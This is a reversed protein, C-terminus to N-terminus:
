QMRALWMYHVDNNGLLVTCDNEAVADPSSYTSIAWPQPAQRPTYPVCVINVHLEMAVAVIVLEDAYENRGLKDVWAKYMAITRQPGGAELCAFAEYIKALMDMRLLVAAEGACFYERIAAALSGLPGDRIDSSTAQHYCLGNLSRLDLARSQELLIPITVPLAQDPVWSSSALGAALCLWFCAGTTRRAHQGLDVVAVHLHLDRLAREQYQTRVSDITLGPKPLAVKTRTHRKFRTNSLFKARDLDSGYLLFQLARVFSFDCLELARTAAEVSYGLRYFVDAAENEKVEQVASDSVPQSATDKARALCYDACAQTNSGCAAIADRVHDSAFQMEMLIETTIHQALTSWDTTHSQKQQKGKKRPAVHDAADRTHRDRRFAEVIATMGLGSSRGRETHAWALVSDSVPAVGRQSLMNAIDELEHLTAARSEASLICKSFHKQHERLHNQESIGRQQLLADHLRDAEEEFRARTKFDAQLRVSLFHDIPPLSEFAIKSWKTARTWGVFALGMKSAPKPMRANKFSIITGEHATIGQAKHLTMAWALRVPLGVRCLQKSQDSRVEEASIPIWTRPLGPFISPGTYDPFNVVIFNPLPCADVGRPVKASASGSASQSSPYGTGALPNDDARNSNPACYLIAVVVGRAGNMLGLPVTGVGWISNLCLFVRAGVCLHLAKRMNRFAAANRNAGRENNHKAECRVVVSLASASSPAQLSPARSALRNGNIRGAQTNDAVLYLAQQLLKEGGPWPADDTSHSGDISHSQWLEYDDRTIAVDRLRMTSEKFPDAGKQRHIMRLRLIQCFDKFLQRGHLAEFRMNSKPSDILPSGDLLSSALVPPLQAFDGMLMIGFGGFSGLDDPPHQQFRERYLVRAAQSLRKAIIAFQSAGVTSIEDIVILRVPRLANVLRDLSEGVLDQSAEAANTHFISDITCSGSGLNSAAVGSFAMTLVARFNQFLLRTNTIAAKATHTKGTGATGLLLFELSPSSVSDPLAEWQFRRQAWDSIIQYAMHQTPDLTQVAAELLTRAEPANMAEVFEREQDRLGRGLTDRVHQGTCPFDDARLSRRVFPPHFNFESALSSDSVPDWALCDYDIASPNIVHGMLAMEEERQDADLTEFVDADNETAHVHGLASEAQEPSVHADAPVDAAAGTHEVLTQKLNRPKREAADDEESADSADGGRGAEVVSNLWFALRQSLIDKNDSIAGGMKLGTRCLCRLIDQIRTKTHSQRNQPLFGAKADGFQQYLSTFYNCMSPTAPASMGAIVVADHLEKSTWKLDKSMYASMRKRIDFQEDLSASGLEVTEDLRASGPEPLRWAKTAMEQEDATMEAFQKSQWVVDECFVFSVKPMAAAVKVPSHKREEQRQKRAIGLQWTKRVHPPCEAIRKTARDEPSGTAFLTMLNDLDGDSFTELHNADRFTTCAEGHNCHALLTWYCADRWQGETLASTFRGVPHVVVVDARQKCKISSGVRQFYRKLQWWTLLELYSPWAKRVASMHSRVSDDESVAEGAARLIERWLPRRTAVHVDLLANQSPASWAFRSVYVEAASPTAISVQKSESKSIQAKTKLQRVESKLWLDRFERSCFYRPVGYLLHVTELQSKVETLSQLNFWKVMAAGAGQMQERAKEICLSFSHEMVKVLSGQGSKTMYKTLYEIVADKSLTAQWDMNSAMAFLLLPVFNNLFHCNRGLWVRYLDRRRPDENIEEHGPVICKRPYLKNCTCREQSSHENEITACAQDRGPPGMPFPAHVDHMNVWEALVAVFLKRALARREVASASCPASIQEADVASASCPASIQEALGPRGCAELIDCLEDWCAQEEQKPEAAQDELMCHAYTKWSISEPSKTQREQKKGLKSRVGPMAASDGSCLENSSDSSQVHKAVNFETFVRDWFTALINAAQEQPLVVSEAPTADVQVVGSRIDIPVIVKDIRPAGVIWLAIHTHLLGGASWELSAYFDDVVGYDRLDPLDQVSIDLGLKEQLQSALMAMAQERGPVVDSQLMRTVIEQVLHVAMELKLTCYWAVVSPNQLALLYYAKKMAQEKESSGHPLDRWQQYHERAHMESASGPPLTKLITTHLQEWKYIACTLTCFGAPIRGAGANEGNDATEAEIQHVMSELEQRMKRREGVSGPLKSTASSMQQVLNRRTGKDELDALTFDIAAERTKFFTRKMTPTMLRLTTDLLWYRFRSHRSFRGDHWMMVFRGWEEFSLLKPFHQRLDHFDGTGFPFLKPFAQAIYGPSDERVAQGIEDEVEPPSVRPYKVKSAENFDGSALIGQESFAKTPLISGSAPVQEAATAAGERNLKEADLDSFTKAIESAMADLSGLRLGVDDDPSAASVGGATEIPADSSLEEQILNIESCLLHLDEPWEDVPLARLVSIMEDTSLEPALDLQLIEESGLLVALRVVELSTTMRLPPKGFTSAALTRVQNWPDQETDEGSGDFVNGARAAIAFGGDSAELHSSGRVLWELFAERTIQLHNELNYNEERVTGIQVDDVRWAEEASSVWEIGRYYPNYKKLWAFARRVKDVDIKFPSGRKNQNKFTRPRVMVFPMHEPVTPLTAIFAATRQRFNCVHGVYALQGTRPITYVQVLPHVLALVMEESDTLTSVAETFEHAALGLVPVPVALPLVPSDRASDSVPASDFVAAAVCVPASDSVSADVSVAAGDSVSCVRDADQASDSVPAGPAEEHNTNSDDQWREQMLIAEGDGETWWEVPDIAYDCLRAGARPQLKHKKVHPSCSKCICVNRGLGPDILRSLIKRAVDPPFNHRVFEQAAVDQGKDFDLVWHNVRKRQTAQLTVSSAPDFWPVGGQHSASGPRLTEQFNFNSPASFWARWCVVCTSWVVNHLFSYMESIVQLCAPDNLACYSPPMSPLCTSSEAKAIRSAAVTWTGGEHSVELIRSARAFQIRSKVTAEKAKLRAAQTREADREKYLATRKTARDAAKASDTRRHKANQVKKKGKASDKQERKARAAKASDKRKYKAAQVKKKAKFSDKQRHKAIQDKISDKQRRKAERERRHERDTLDIYKRKSNAKLPMKFRPKSAEAAIASDVGPLTQSAELAIISTDSAHDSDLDIPGQMAQAFQASSAAATHSEGAEEDLNTVQSGKSARGSEVKNGFTQRGGGVLGPLRLRITADKLAHVPYDKPLNKGDLVFSSAPLFAVLLAQDYGPPLGRWRNKICDQWSGRQLPVVLSRSQLPSRAPLSTLDLFFSTPPLVKLVSTPKSVNKDLANTTISGARWLLDWDQPTATVGFNVYWSNFRARVLAGLYNHLIAFPYLFPLLILLWWIDRRKEKRRRKLAVLLERQVPLAQDQVKQSNTDCGHQIDLLGLSGKRRAEFDKLKIETQTGPLVQAQVKQINTDCSQHTNLFVVSSNRRVELDKMQIDIQAKKVPLAQDNGNPRMLQLQLQWKADVGNTQAADTDAARVPPPSNEVRALRMPLSLGSCFEIPLVVMQTSSTLKKPVPSRGRLKGTQLFPSPSRSYILAPLAQRSSKTHFDSM